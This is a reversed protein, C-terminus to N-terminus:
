GRRALRKHLWEVLQNYASRQEQHQPEAFTMADIPEGHQDPYIIMLSKGAFHHTLEDPLREIATKYSVTGKRATVVVFLHDSKICSALQPLENWHAMPSYEARVGSHMNKLYQEMLALSEQRAHFEIRCDLNEAMRALREMWRHFGPEFEARSPVAVQIKRMTNLPRECQAIIIQRNLGNFM